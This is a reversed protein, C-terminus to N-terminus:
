KRHITYNQYERVKGEEFRVWRRSFLMAEYIWIEATGSATDEQRNEAPAGWAERVIEPPDGIRIQGDLVRNITDDPWGAAKLKSTNEERAVTREADLRTYDAKIAPIDEDHYWVHSLYKPDRIFYIGHTPCVYVNLGLELSVEEAVVVNDYTGCEPCIPKLAVTAALASGALIFTFTILRKM